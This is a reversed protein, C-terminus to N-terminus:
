TYSLIGLLGVSQLCAGRGRPPRLGRRLLRRDAPVDRRQHHGVELPHPLAMPNFSGFTDLLLPKPDVGKTEPACYSTQPQVLSGERIAVNAHKKIESILLSSSYHLCRNSGTPSWRMEELGSM